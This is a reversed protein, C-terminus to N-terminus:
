MKGFNLKNANISGCQTSSRYQQGISQQVLHKNSCAVYMPHMVSYTSTLMTMVMIIVEENAESDRTSGVGDGVEDGERGGM